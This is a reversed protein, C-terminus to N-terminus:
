KLNYRGVDALSSWGSIAIQAERYSAIIKASQPDASALRALVADAAGRAAALVEAPVGGITVGQAVLERLAKGNLREADALGIDHEAHCAAEVIAKLDAPLARWLDLRVLLESAGNPKNFGPVLYNQAIRNLGLPADNMPALLEVADIVGRELASYTDAPPIASATAGLASYIEGGLGTARIRLGKIDALGAVPKRFWGAASPGTNGGVFPKINRAAYLEDWLTQGDGLLWAMHQVPNLGFPVTTFVPAVPIKGAWFLAATHGLEVTGTSVADLVGFAPVITGAPFVEITLEGNSAETIRKALREASVGPGPLNKSWSTVCRWKRPSQARAIRPAAVTTAVTAASGALLLSRRDPQTTM